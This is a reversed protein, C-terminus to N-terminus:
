QDKVDFRKLSFRKRSSVSSILILCFCLEQDSTLVQSQSTYVNQPSVRTAHSLGLGIRSPSQLTGRAFILVLKLMAQQGQDVQYNGFM